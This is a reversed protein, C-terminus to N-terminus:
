PTAPQATGGGGILGGIINEGAEIARLPVQTKIGLAEVAGKIAGEVVAGALDAQTQTIQQLMAAQATTDMQGEQALDITWYQSEANQVRIGMSAVVALIDGPQGKVRCKYDISEGETANGEADPEGVGINHFEVEYTTKNGWGQGTACGSGAAVLLGVMGAMLLFGASKNLMKEKNRAFAFLRSALPVLVTCIFGVTAAQIKPDAFFPVADGLQTVVWTVLGVVPLAVGGVNQTTRSNLMNKIMKLM